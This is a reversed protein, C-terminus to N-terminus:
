KVTRLLFFVVTFGASAMITCYFIDVGAPVGPFIDYVSAIVFGTIIMFTQKPFVTMAKDIGKTTILTGVVVGTGLLLLYYFNGSGFAGWVTEYMGLVLLIHSTSIGPLVLAIAIIVGGFILLVAGKFDSPIVTFSNKPLLGILAVLGIGVFAFLGNYINKIDVTSKKLLLPIGAIIAGMFFYTMPLSWIEVLWLILRSFLLIGVASGILIQILFGANKKFDKLINGAASILRDYIGLMIATTGGSVGPVLMSSGIVVGCLINKLASKIKPKTNKNTVIDM